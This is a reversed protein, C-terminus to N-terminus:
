FDSGSGYKSADILRDCYYKVVSPLEVRTPLRQSLSFLASYIGLNGYHVM